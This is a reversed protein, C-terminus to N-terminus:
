EQDPTEETAEEVPEAQAEEAPQEEETPAEETAPEEELAEEAPEAEPETAPEAEENVEEVQAEETAEAEPEEAYVDVSRDDTTDVKMREVKPANEKDLKKKRRILFYTLVGAGVVVLGIGVGILAWAWDPLPEAEEEEEVYNQLANTWYDKISEQDAEDITGLRTIFYDRTRYSVGNEDVLAEVGGKGEVYDKFAKQEDESYLFNEKKGLEIASQINAAFLTDEYKTAASGTQFFYNMATSVNSSVDEGQKAIFGVKASSDTVAKYKENLKEIQSNTMLKGDATLNVVSVYSYSVSGVAEADAFYVSGDIIEYKYWGSAHQLNLVKVAKFNSNDEEEFDLPDYNKKNGNYVAREVSYGAGNSRTFYVYQYTDDSTNDIEILEAGSADYCIVTEDTYGSGDSKVDARIINEDQVYLYHHAGEGDIYFIASSSAKSTNAPQAVVDLEGNGAISNWDKNGLDEESVYYLSGGVGTTSSDASALDSRVFYIGKNTYSQLTYTYGNPTAPKVGETLGHTLNKPPEDANLLGIGDLVIEGLNVYPAEGDKNENLYDWDWEYNYVAETRDARVRYIQNYALSVTSDTDMNESVSMTYYIWPNTKNVSDLAYGGVNTALTTNVGSATNYSHLESKESYVLYVSDDQAVYRFVTSNDSVRFYDKIDSGDLKASKFDLYDSEIQGSTNKANTPTAYYVRDGYVYIGSTYDASVMLSPIVTQADGKKAAIDTKKARMLAGKVPTGYTNDATNAQVGNVFYVYEGKEVVFGGNSKVEGSSIDGDLPTFKFDCATLSLAGLALVAATSIVIVKKFSKRMSTH